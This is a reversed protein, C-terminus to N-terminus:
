RSRKRVIRGLAALATLGLLALTGPEPVPSIQSELIASSGDTFTVEYVLFGSNNFTMGLGDQGGSLNNSFIISSVTRENNHGGSALYMVDGVLLITELADATGAFLGDITPGNTLNM